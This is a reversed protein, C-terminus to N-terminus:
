RAAGKSEGHTPPLDSTSTRQQASLWRALDSPRYRVSRGIKLFPPGDGTRRLKELTRRSLGVHNAAETTKLPTEHM